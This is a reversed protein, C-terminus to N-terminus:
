DVNFQDLEDKLYQPLAMYDIDFDLLTKEFLDVSFSTGYNRRMYDIADKVQSEMLEHVLGVTSIDGVVWPEFLVDFPM